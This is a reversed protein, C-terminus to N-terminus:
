KVSNKFNKFLSISGDKGFSIESKNNENMYNVLECKLELEDSEIKKRKENLKKLKKAKFLMDENGQMPISNARKQNLETTYELWSESNQMPPEVKYFELQLREVEKMNPLTKNFEIQNLIIRAKEVRQWFDKVGKVITKELDLAQKYTMRLEVDVKSSGVKSFLEGYSYETVLLQMALQAMEYINIKGKYMDYAGQTKDKLELVCKEGKDNVWERDLSVFMNPYKDNYHYGNVEFAQRLKRGSNYNSMMTQTDKEFYEWYSATIPEQKKGELMRFSTEIPPLLGLKRHFTHLSSEWKNGILIVGIESAGVGTTRRYGLWEEQSWKSTDIFHVM